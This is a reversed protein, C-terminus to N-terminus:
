LMDELTKRMFNEIERLKKRNTVVDLQIRFKKVELEEEDTLEQVEFNLEQKPELVEQFRKDVLIDKISLPFKIGNKDVNYVDDVEIIEDKSLINTGFFIVDEKILFKRM